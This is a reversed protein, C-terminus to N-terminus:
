SRRLLMNYKGNIGTEARDAVNVGGEPPQRRDALVAEIQEDRYGLAGEETALSQRQLERYDDVLTTGVMVIKGTRVEHMCVKGVKPTFASRDLYARDLFYNAEMYAVLDEPMQNPHKLVWNVYELDALAARYCEGKYRGSEVIENGKWQRGILRYFM